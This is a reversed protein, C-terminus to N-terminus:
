VHPLLHSHPPTFPLHLRSSTPQYEGSIETKPEQSEERVGASWRAHFLGRLALHMLLNRLTSDTCCVRTTSPRSARCQESESNRIMHPWNTSHREVRQM